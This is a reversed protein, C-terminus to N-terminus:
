PNGALARAAASLQDYRPQSFPEHTQWLIRGSHDVLLVYAADPATPTFGAAQKWAAEGATLPVFRPKLADPVQKRIARLILPRIFSPADELFPMDFFGIDPSALSTRVPKEWATTTDQSNRSFGLILITARPSLDRPLSVTHGDLATGTAPPINAALSPASLLLLAPLLLAPGPKNMASHTSSFGVAFDKVCLECLFFAFTAFYPLPM